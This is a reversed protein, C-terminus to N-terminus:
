KHNILHKLSFCFNTNKSGNVKGSGSKAIDNSKNNLSNARNPSQDLHTKNSRHKISKENNIILEKTKSNHKNAFKKISNLYNTEKLYNTDKLDNMTQMAATSSVFFM